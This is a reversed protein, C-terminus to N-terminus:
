KVEYNQELIAQYQLKSKHKLLKYDKNLLFAFIYIFNRGKIIIILLCYNENLPIVTSKCCHHCRFHKIRVYIVWDSWKTLGHLYMWIFCVFSEYKIKNLCKCHLSSFFFAAAANLFYNQYIATQACHIPLYNSIQYLRCVASLLISDKDTERM